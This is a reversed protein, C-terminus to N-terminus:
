SGKFYSHRLAENASPRNKAKFELLSGILDRAELSVNTLSKLREEIYHEDECMEKLREFSKTEFFKKGTYLYFFM